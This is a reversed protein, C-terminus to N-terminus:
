PKEFMRERTSLISSMWDLFAKLQEDESHLQNNGKAKFASAGEDTV